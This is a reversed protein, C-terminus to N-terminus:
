GMTMRYGLLALVHRSFLRTSFASVKNIKGVVISPKREFMAKIGREAVVSAPLMSAKLSEKPTYNAVGFFETEM